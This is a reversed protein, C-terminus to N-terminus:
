VAFAIRIKAVWNGGNAKHVASAPEPERPERDLIPAGRHLLISTHFKETAGCKEERLCISVAAHAATLRVVLFAM